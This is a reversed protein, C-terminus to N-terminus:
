AIRPRGASGDMDGRLFALTEDIFDIRPASPWCGELGEDREGLAMLAATAAAAALRPRLDDPSDGRDGVVGSRLM